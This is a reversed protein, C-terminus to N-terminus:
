VFFVFPRHDFGVQGWNELRDMWRTSDKERMCVEKVHDDVPLKCWIDNRVAFGFKSEAREHKLGVCLVAPGRVQYSVLVLPSVKGWRVNFFRFHRRRIDRM